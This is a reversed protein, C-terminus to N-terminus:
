FTLKAPQKFLQPKSSKFIDTITKCDSFITDGQQPPLHWRRLVLGIIIAVLEMNALQSGVQAGNNLTILITEKHEWDTGTPIITIGASGRRNTPDRQEQFASLFEMDFSQWGGGVYITYSTPLTHEIQL